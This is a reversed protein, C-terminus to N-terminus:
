QRAEGWVLPFLSVFMTSASGVLALTLGNNVQQRLDNNSSNNQMLANDRDNISALLLTVITSATFTTLGVNRVTRWFEKDHALRQRDEWAEADAEAEALDRQRLEERQAATAAGLRLLDLNAALDTDGTETLQQRLETLKQQEEATFHHGQAFLDLIKQYAQRPTPAAAPTPLSDAWGPTGLALVLLVVNLRM